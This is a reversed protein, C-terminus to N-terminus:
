EGEEDTAGKTMIVIVPPPGCAYGDALFRRGDLGFKVAEDDEVEDLPTLEGPEEDDDLDKCGFSPCTGDEDLTVTCYCRECWRLARFCDLCTPMSLYIGVGGNGQSGLFKAIGQYPEGCSHCHWIPGKLDHLDLITTMTNLTNPNPDIEEIEELEWTDYNGGEMVEVFAAAITGHLVVDIANDLKKFGLWGYAKGSVYIPFVEGEKFLFYNPEWWCGDYPVHSRCYLICPEERGELLEKLTREM